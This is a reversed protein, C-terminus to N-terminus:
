INGSRPSLPASPLLWLKERGLYVSPRAESENGLELRLLLIPFIINSGSCLGQAQLLCVELRLVLRLLNGLKVRLRM